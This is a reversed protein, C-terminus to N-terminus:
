NVCGCYGRNCLCHGASANNHWHGLGSNGCVGCATVSLVPELFDNYVNECIPDQTERCGTPMTHVFMMSEVALFRKLPAQRHRPLRSAGMGEKCMSAQSAGPPVELAEGRHERFRIVTGPLVLQLLRQVHRCRSPQLGYRRALEIGNWAAFQSATM